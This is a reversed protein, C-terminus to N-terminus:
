WASVIRAIAAVARRVAESLYWVLEDDTMLHVNDGIREKSRL